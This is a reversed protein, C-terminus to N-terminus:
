KKYLDCPNFSQLPNGTYTYTIIAATVTPHTCIATEVEVNHIFCWEQFDFAFTAESVFPMRYEDITRLQNAGLFGLM